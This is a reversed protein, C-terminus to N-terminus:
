YIFGKLLSNYLEKKVYENKKREIKREKKREKREERFRYCASTGPGPISGIWLLSKLWQVSLVQEKFWSAM